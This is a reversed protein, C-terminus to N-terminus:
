KKLYKAWACCARSTLYNEDAEHAYAEREFSIGRYANGADVCLRVLWELVYCLYFGVLLLELQQAGHIREHNILRPTVEAKTNILVFPWLTIAAYGDALLADAFKNQIFIM